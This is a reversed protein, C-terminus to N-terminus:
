PNATWTCSGTCDVQSRGSCATAREHCVGNVNADRTPSPTWQCGGVSNRASECATKRTHTACQDNVAFCVGAKAGGTKLSSFIFTTIAYSAMVIILGIIAATIIKLARKIQDDNGHATMWLFGGYLTLIFFAIGVLSLGTGIINGIITPIDRTSTDLGAAGATRSLGFDNALVVDGVLLVAALFLVFAVIFQFTKM